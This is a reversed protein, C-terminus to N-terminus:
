ESRSAREVQDHSEVACCKNLQEIMCRAVCRYHVGRPTVVVTGFTIVRNLYTDQGRLSFFSDSRFRLM